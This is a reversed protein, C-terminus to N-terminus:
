FIAKQLLRRLITLPLSPIFYESTYSRSYSLLNQIVLFECLYSHLFSVKGHFVKKETLLFLFVNQALQLKEEIKRDVTKLFVSVAM